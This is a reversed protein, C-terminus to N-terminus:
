LPWAAPGPGLGSPRLAWRVTVRDGRGASLAHAASGGRVAIELHGTSGLLACLEGARVDAYTRVTGAIERSAIAVRVDTAAPLMREDINTILNGFHDVRIVQGEITDRTTTAGPVTLITADVVPPGFARLEVGRALWGAAPAFRDRGEFTHSMTPRAYKRERLEVVLSTHGATADAVALSLVGNDPGVFHYGGAGAAIARRATGVGPDVVALFVTGPPFYRYAAALELAGALVDHVPIHHTIDVLTAQPCVSLVVGKMAGVYHDRLGFDTLLAVVPNRVVFAGERLSEGV